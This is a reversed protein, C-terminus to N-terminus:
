QALVKKGNIINIGKQPKQLRQGALNCIQGEEEPSTLLPSIGDEDDDFVFSFGKVPSDGTVELYAKGAAM